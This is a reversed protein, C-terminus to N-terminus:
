LEGRFAKALLSPALDLLEKEVEKKLSNVENKLNELAKMEQVFVEQDPFSPVPILLSSLQDKNFNPFVGGEAKHLIETVQIQIMGYVFAPAMKKENVRIAAIGRGISYERDAWNMRGTTSGRVCFLIDGRRCERKSDTTWQVPYPHSEGFETPGNLLPIGREERSYSSGPPSQGMILRAISKDGLYSHHWGRNECVTMLRQLYSPFISEFSNKSDTILQRVEETRRTLEEIRAVIQRQEDLPPVPIKFAKLQDRKIATFGGGQDRVSQSINLEISRLAYLLFHPLVKKFCRIAALGRGICCKQNALNTPGVPARVSILVDDKLAVRSPESCYKKPIPFIEGFEAKGQYFPLGVGDNNYTSSPPSQGMIVKFYDQDGLQKYSWRRHAKNSM